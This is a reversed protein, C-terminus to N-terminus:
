FCFISLLALNDLEAKKNSTSYCVDLESKSKGSKTDRMENVRMQGEAKGSRWICFLGSM